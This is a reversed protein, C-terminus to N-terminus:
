RLGDRPRDPRVLTLPYKATRRPNDPHYVIPVVTGVAPPNKGVEFSGTKTSGSLTQFEYTVQYARHKDRHVRKQDIVRALAPRGEMLLIWQRRLGLAMAAAGSVLGLPILVIAVLPVGGPEHGIMWSTGPASPVYGIAIRSGAELERHAREGFSTRGTYLRGGAEYRYTVIRRPNDGRRVTVDAVEAQVTVADRERIQQERQQRQYAISMLIASVLAGVAMAVAVVALVVGGGSLRVERPISGQLEDPIRAGETEGGAQMTM